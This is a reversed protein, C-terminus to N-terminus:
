LSSVFHAEDVVFIPFGSTKLRMVEEIKRGHTSQTWHHSALEGIVLVNMTQVIKGKCIGGRSRVQEECWKRTGSLFTGTFVYQQGAFALPPPPDDLPLKTAAPLPHHSEVDPQFREAFRHLDEQEEPELRGNAFARDLREKLQKVPYVFATDPNAAIWNLMAKAEGESIVSDQLSMRFMGLIEAILRDRRRAFGIGPDLDSSDGTEAFRRMNRAYEDNRDDSM